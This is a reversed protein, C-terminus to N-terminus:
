LMLWVSMTGSEVRLVTCRPPSATKLLMAVMMIDPMKTASTNGIAIMGTMPVFLDRQIMTM